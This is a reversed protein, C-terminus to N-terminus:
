VARSRAKRGHATVAEDWKSALDAGPAPHADAGSGITRAYGSGEQLVQNVMEAVSLDRILAPVRHKYVVDGSSGARATTGYMARTVSLLRMAYVTAASHTALVTGNWARKCTAVGAIVQEVLLQESDLVLVEGVNLTGSGTTALAKDSDSATTCGGGTQMLGTAAAAVDTILIREGTYPAIAGAYGLASPFPAAGRGYGLILLDGVGTKSGDTVTVSTDGALVNAALTGTPDADAGYGWTGSMVISHQPSPANGGFAANSGRDLELYEYFPKGEVPNNVPELFVQNLPITVGGTVLGTLVTCDFQDLWLRWPYAYQGGGSGGQNPWDAYVTGDFPYFRRHMQRDINTAATENARDAAENQDIGDRFDIARMGTQRSCYTMRTVTM